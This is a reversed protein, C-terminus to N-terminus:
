RDRRDGRRKLLWFIFKHFWEPLMIWIAWLIAALLGFVILSNRVVPSRFAMVGLCLSFWVLASGFLVLLLFGLVKWGPSLKPQPTSLDRSGCKSCVEAHRPNIHHRPCLKVNYSRGCYNCFLPEGATSHGCNLCFKM